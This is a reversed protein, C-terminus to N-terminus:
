EKGSLVKLVFALGSVAGIVACGILFPYFYEPTTPDTLDEGSYNRFRYDTVFNVFALYGGITFLAAGGLTAFAILMIKQGITDEPLEENREIKM